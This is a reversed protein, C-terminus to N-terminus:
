IVNKKIDCKRQLQKVLIGFFINFNVFITNEDNNYSQIFFNWQFIMLYKKSLILLLYDRLYNFNNYITLIKFTIELFISQLNFFRYLFKDNGRSVLGSNIM